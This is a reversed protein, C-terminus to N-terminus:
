MWRATPRNSLLPASVRSNLPSADEERFSCRQINTRMWISCKQVMNRMWILFVFAVLVFRYSSALADRLAEYVKDDVHECVPMGGTSFIDWSVLQQCSFCVPGAYALGYGLRLLLMFLMYLTWVAIPLIALDQAEAIGKMVMSRASSQWFRESDASFPILIQEQVLQQEIGLRRISALAKGWCALSVALFFSYDQTNSTAGHESCFENAACCQPSFVFISTSTTLLLMSLTAARQRKWPVLQSFMWLLAACMYLIRTSMTVLSWTFPTVSGLFKLSCIRILMHVGICAVFLRGFEAVTFGYAHKEVHVKAIRVGLENAMETEVQQGKGLEGDEVLQLMVAKQDHRERGLHWRYSARWCVNSAQAKTPDKGEYFRNCCEKLGRCYPHEQASNLDKKSKRAIRPFLSCYPEPPLYRCDGLSSENPSYCHDHGLKKRVYDSFRGVNRKNDYKVSLVINQELLKRSPLSRVWCTASFIFGGLGYQLFLIGLKLAWLLDDKLDPTLM